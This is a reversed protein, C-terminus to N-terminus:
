KIAPPLLALNTSADFSKSGFNLTNKSRVFECSLDSITVRLTENLAGSLYLEKCKAEASDVVIDKCDIDLDKAWALEGPFKQAVDYCSYYRNNSFMMYTGCYVVKETSLQFKSCVSEATALEDAPIKSVNNKYLTYGGWIILGVVILVLLVILTGGTQDQALGQGRKNKNFM